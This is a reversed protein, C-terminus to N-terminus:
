DAELKLRFVPLTTFDGCICLHVNMVNCAYSPSVVRGSCLDVVGIDTRVIGVHLTM